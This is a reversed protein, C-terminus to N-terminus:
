REARGAFGATSPARPTASSLPGAKTSGPQQVWTEMVYVNNERHFNTKLGTKLNEIYGSGAEFVVRNGRDCTKSVSGLARSVEAVQYVSEVWNGEETLGGVRREGLNPLVDGSASQWSQGRKSGVSPELPVWDAMDVPAVTDAAGSDVVTELEVWKPEENLHNLGGEMDFLGMMFDDREHAAEGVCSCGRGSMAMFKKSKKRRAKVPHFLFDGLTTTSPVKLHDKGKCTVGEDTVGKADFEMSMYPPVEPEVGEGLVHYRNSVSLTAEPIGCEDVIGPPPRLSLPHRSQRHGKPKKEVDMWQDEEVDALEFLGWAPSPSLASLVGTDGATTSVEPTWQEEWWGNINGKGGKAGFGKGVGKDWGKAGFSSTRPGSKGYGKGGDRGVGKRMEADKVPCKSLVHGPQWCHFCHNRWPCASARHGWEGCLNCAGQFSGGAGTGWGGGKAGGQGQWGNKGKGGKQSAVMLEDIRNPNNQQDQQQQQQQQQQQVECTAFSPWAEQNHYCPEKPAFVNLDMPAPGGFDAKAEIYRLIAEKTDEYTDEESVRQTMFETVENPVMELLIGCKLGDSLNEQYDAQLRRVDHEWREIMGPAEALKKVKSPNVCRRTLVVRKGKTKGGFRRTLKRWAEAGCRDQVNKVLDFAEGKTIAALFFYILNDVMKYNEPATDLAICTTQAEAWEILKFGDMSVARLGVETRFQWEMFGSGNFVETRKTLKEVLDGYRGLSMGGGAAEPVSRMEEYFAAVTSRVAQAIANM